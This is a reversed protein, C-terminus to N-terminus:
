LGVRGWSGGLGCVCCRESRRHCRVCAVQRAAERCKQVSIEDPEGQYEPVAPVCLLWEPPSPRASRRGVAGWAGAALKRDIKKAVLTYPSSDGLIQTVQLPLVSPFGSSLSLSM